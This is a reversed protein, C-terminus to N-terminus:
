LLVHLEKGVTDSEVTRKSKLNSYEMENEWLLLILKAQDMSTKYLLTGITRRCLPSRNEKMGESWGLEFM